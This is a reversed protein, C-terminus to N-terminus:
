NIIDISNMNKFGDVKDYNKWCRRVGRSTQTKQCPAPKSSGKYTKCILGVLDREAEDGIKETHVGELTIWPVYKRAPDLAETKLAM